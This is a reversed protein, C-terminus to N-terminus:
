LELILRDFKGWTFLTREVAVLEVLRQAPCELVLKRNFFLRYKQTKNIINQQSRM